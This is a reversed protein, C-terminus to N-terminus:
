HDEYIVINKGNQKGYYMREDAVKIIDEPTHIGDGFEGLGITITAPIRKNFFVTPSVEVARRLSEMKERAAELGTDKMLIIFEEGGWRCTECGNMEKNMIRTIHRIVEDGGDHGYSDNIRKFNDIDCFAISFGASGKEKMLKEVIPLFGRRNLMGTLADESADATLQKNEKELNTVEGESSYIYIANYFITSFVMVFSSFIVITTKMVDPIDYVPRVQAFTIYLYVFLGFNMILLVLVHWRSKGKFLFCGLYIIIPVISFLFCYTGCRLGIFYTSIITYATVEAVISVYVPLVHGTRCLVMCFLYVVVSLINFYVLPFVEVALMIALLVAHVMGMIMVTVFNSNHVLFHITKDFLGAKKM